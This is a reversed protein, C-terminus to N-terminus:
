PEGIREPDEGGMRAEGRPYTIKYNGERMGGGKWNEEFNGLPRFNWNPLYNPLSKGRPQGFEERPQGLILKSGWEHQM